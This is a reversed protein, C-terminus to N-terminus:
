RSFASVARLTDRPGEELGLVWLLLRPNLCVSLISPRGSDQPSCLRTNCLGCFHLGKFSGLISFDPNQASLGPRLPSWFSINAPCLSEWCVQFSLRFGQLVSTVRSPASTVPLLPTPCFLFFFARPGLQRLLDPPLSAWYRGALRRCFGLQLGRHVASEGPTLSLPQSSPNPPDSSFRKVKAKGTNEQPGELRLWFYPTDPRSQFANVKVRFIRQVQLRQRHVRSKSESQVMFWEQAPPRGGSLLM